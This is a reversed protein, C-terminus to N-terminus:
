AVVPIQQVVVQKPKRTALAVAGWILLGGVVVGGIYVVPAPMGWIRSTDEPEHPTYDEGTPSGLQKQKLFDLAVTFFGKGFDKIGALTKQRKLWKDYDPQSSLKGYKAKDKAWLAKMDAESVIADPVASTDGKNADNLIKYFESSSLGSSSYKYNLKAIANKTKNGFIGDDTVDTAGLKILARQLDGINGESGKQPYPDKEGIKFPAVNGTAGHYRIYGLSANDMIQKFRDKTM